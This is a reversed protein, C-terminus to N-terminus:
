RVINAIRGWRIGDEDKSWYIMMAQGVIDEEPVCGWHRSDLSNNVNDGVVFYYNKEVTYSSSETGDIVIMGNHNAISHGERQIFVNWRDFSSPDLEITMGAFPVIMSTFDHTAINRLNPFDSGNVSLRGNMVSVTDGPLGVCRKVLFQRKVPYVEDPMGPFEFVIVDGHRINNLKPFRLSPVRLFFLSSPTRAGYIFKNVLLFDGAVLTESMSDTPISFADVVCSKLSAAFLVTLFVVAVGDRIKRRM